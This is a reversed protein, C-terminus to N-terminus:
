VTFTDLNYVFTHNYVSVVRPASLTVFSYFDREEPSHTLRASYRSLGSENAGTPATECVGMSQRLPASPQSHACTTM